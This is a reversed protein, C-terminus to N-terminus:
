NKNDSIRFSNRAKDVVGTIHSPLPHEMLGLASLQSLGQLVNAGRLVVSMKVPLDTVPKGYFIGDFQYELKNLVPPTSSGFKSNILEKARQKQHKNEEIVGDISKNFNEIEAPRLPCLQNEKIKENKYQSSVAENNGRHVIDILSKVHHGSLNIDKLSTGGFVQITAEKVIRSLKAGVQSMIMYPSNHFVVLFVSNNPNYPKKTQKSKQLLMSSKFHLRLWVAGSFTKMNGSVDSNKFKNGNGDRWKRGTIDILRARLRRPDVCLSADSCGRLKFVKWLKKSSHLHVYTLELDGIIDEHLCKDESLASIKKALKAKSSSGRKSILDDINIDPFRGWQKLTWSLSSKSCKTVVHSIIEERLNEM